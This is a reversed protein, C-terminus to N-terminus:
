FIAVAEARGLRGNGNSRAALLVKRWLAQEKRASEFRPSCHHYLAPNTNFLANFWSSYVCIAFTCATKLVAMQQKRSRGSRWTRVELCTRMELLESNGYMLSAYM